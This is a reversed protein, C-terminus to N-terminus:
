TKSHQINVLRICCMRIYDGRLNLQKVVIIYVNYM